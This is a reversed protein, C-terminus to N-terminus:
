QMTSGYEGLLIALDSLDVGGDYDLDGDEFTAGSSMGYNALLQSLDALDVDGDHDLDGCIALDASTLTLLQYYDWGTGYNMYQEVIGSVDCFHRGVSVFRHYGTPEVEANIYDAAWCDAGTGDQLNYNDVAKGLDMETVAVDRVLVRMSEYREAYRSEVYWGDDNPDYVPAAINSASLMLEPPVPNGHSVITYGPDNDPEYQLVTTGAFEEVRLNTFEVWDGVQVENFMDYPYAWDNVQIGGWGNPHNPDLLILRLRYAAHKAVCIGGACDVISGDYPSVGNPDDSYQIDYIGLPQGAADPDLAAIALVLSIVGLASGSISNM